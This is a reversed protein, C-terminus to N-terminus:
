TNYRNTDTPMGKTGQSSPINIEPLLTLLPSPVTPLEADRYTQKIFSSRVSSQQKAQLEEKTLWEDNLYSFSDICSRQNTNDDILHVSNELCLDEWSDPPKENDSISTVTSFYDDFVVHFQPTISGTQMNLILPVDSSHLNSIGVFM